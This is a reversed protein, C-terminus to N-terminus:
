NVEEPTEYQRVFEGVSVYDNTFNTYTIRPRDILVIDLNLEIAATLKTETGGLTGSNKMVVVDTDYREYLEKNLEESFPGQMAVIDRPLIGAKECIELSAVAPLVRAVIHRSHERAAKAFLDLRNSGTTLFIDHGLQMALEAAEEYTKVIHLKEYDPLPTVAREYRIYPIGTERCVRMATKSVNAAYPHTADVFVKIDHEQLCRRMAEEDLKHDNVILNDSRPLLDKGYSTVVSAMVKYGRELLYQVLGRGDQTGSAAFIM